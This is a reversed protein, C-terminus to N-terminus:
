TAPGRRARTRRRVALGAMGALGASLAFLSACGGLNPFAPYFREASDLGEGLTRNVGGAALVTGDLLLTATNEGRAEVFAPSSLWQGFGTPSTNPQFHRSSRNSCYPEPLLPQCLYHGGVLLVTGDTLLVAQGWGGVIEELGVQAWTRDAPNFREVLQNFDLQPGVPGQEIAAGGAIVLSGDELLASMHLGRPHHLSNPEPVFANASPEYREVSATVDLQDGSQVFGGVILVVGDPMTTASHATRAVLMDDASSWQGTAASYREASRTSSGDAAFGGIVLVDGSPLLAAAHSSRATRLSGAPRWAGTTADYREASGLATGLDRPDAGGLGGVVLVSGDGLLTATHYSRAHCMSGTTRWRATDPDYLEASALGGRHNYGGAALVTGAPLLTATHSARQLAMYGTPIWAPQTLASPMPLGAALARLRVLAPRALPRGHPHEAPTSLTIPATM